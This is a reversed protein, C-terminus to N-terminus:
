VPWSIMARVWYRPRSLSRVKAKWVSVGSTAGPSRIKLAAKSPCGQPVTTLAAGEGPPPQSRRATSCIAAASRPSARRCAGPRDAARRCQRKGVRDRGRLRRAFAFASRRRSAGRSGGIEVDVVSDDGIGDRRARADARQHRVDLRAGADGPRQERAAVIRRRPHFHVGRDRAGRREARTRAVSPACARHSPASAPRCADCRAIRRVAAARAAGYAQGRATWERM